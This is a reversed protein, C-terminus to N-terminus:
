FLPEEERQAEGPSRPVVHLPLLPGTSPLLVTGGQGPGARAQLPEARAAPGALM